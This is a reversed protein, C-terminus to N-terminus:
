PVKCNECFRGELQFDAIKFKCERRYKAERVMWESLFRCLCATKLSSDLFLSQLVHFRIQELINIVKQGWWRPGNVQNSTWTAM